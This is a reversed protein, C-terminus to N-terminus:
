STPRPRSSRGGSRSPPSGCRLSGTAPALDLGVASPDPAAGAAPMKPRRRHARGARSGVRGARRGLASRPSPGRRRCREPRRRGVRPPTRPRDVETRVGARSVKRVSRMSASSCSSPWFSPPLLASAARNMRRAISRSSSAAQLDRARPCRALPISERGVPPDVIRGHIVVQQRDPPERPKGPQTDSREPVVVLQVQEARRIDILEGAIPAVPAVLELRGPRDGPEALQLQREVLDALYERDVVRGGAGSPEGLMACPDFRPGVAELADKM